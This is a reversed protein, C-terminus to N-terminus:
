AAYDIQNIEFVYVSDNRGLMAIRKAFQRARPPVQKEGARMGVAPGEVGCRESRSRNQEARSSLASPLLENVSHLDDRSAPVIKKARSSLTIRM